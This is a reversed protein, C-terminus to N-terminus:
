RVAATQASFQRRDWEAWRSGNLSKRQTTMKSAISTITPTVTASIMRRVGGVMDGPLEAGRLALQQMYEITVQVDLDYSLFSQLAAELIRKLEADKSLSYKLAGIIRNRRADMNM